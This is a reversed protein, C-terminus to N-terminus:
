RGFAIAAFFLFIILWLGGVGVITSLHPHRLQWADIAAMLQAELPIVARSARTPPTTAQTGASCTQVHPM